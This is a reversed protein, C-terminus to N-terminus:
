LPKILCNVHSQETWDLYYSQLERALEFHFFFFFGETVKGWNVWIILIIRDTRAENDTVDMGASNSIFIEFSLFIYSYIFGWLSLKASQSWTLCMRM